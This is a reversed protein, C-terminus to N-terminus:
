CYLVEVGNGGYCCTLLQAAASPKTFPYAITLILIEWPCITTLTKSQVSSSTYSLEVSVSLNLSTFLSPPLHLTYFFRLLQRVDKVVAFNTHSKM